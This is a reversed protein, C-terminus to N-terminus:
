LFELQAPAREAPKRMKGYFVQMREFQKDTIMLSRVEGKDPLFGKVKKLHIQANEDSAAHRTYVSLQMMTFGCLKLDKRFRNAAKREEPEVVPLDFMLVIWM